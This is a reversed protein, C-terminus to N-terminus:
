ICKDIYDRCKVLMENKVFKAIISFTDKIIEKSKNFPYQWTNKLEEITYSM